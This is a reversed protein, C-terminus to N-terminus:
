FNYDYHERRGPFVTSCGNRFNVHIVETHSGDEQKIWARRTNKTMRAVCISGNPDPEYAYRQIGDVHGTFGGPHMVLADSEGSDLGNLLTVKDRQLTISQPTTKIVTYAAHDSYGCITAGDGVKYPNPMINRKM